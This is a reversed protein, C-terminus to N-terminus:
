EPTELYALTRKRIREGNLPCYYFVMQPPMALNNRNGIGNFARATAREQQYGM